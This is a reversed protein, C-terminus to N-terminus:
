RDVPHLFKKIKTEVFRADDANSTETVHPEQIDFRASLRLSVRRRKITERVEDGEHLSKCPEAEEHRLRASRRRLSFSATEKSEKAGDM